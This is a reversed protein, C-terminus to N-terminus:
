FQKQSDLLLTVPGQNVLEVEMTEQFQGAAVTIGKAELEQCFKHYLSLALEPSAAATFGPRKGKRADGYLTFQSVCLVEGDIDMISLNMRGDGDEFVRLGSVKDALYTVDKDTDECGVGLLVLLGKNIRGVISDNVRVEARKVRQIVARM